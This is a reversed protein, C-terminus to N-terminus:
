RGGELLTSPAFAARVDFPSAEVNRAAAASGAYVGFTLMVAAVGAQWRWAARVQPAPRNDEIREWVRSELHDLSPAPARERLAAIMLDLDAIM